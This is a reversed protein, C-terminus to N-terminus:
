FSIWYKFENKTLQALKFVLLKRDSRCYSISKTFYMCNVKVYISSKECIIIICYIKINFEKVLDDIVVHSM